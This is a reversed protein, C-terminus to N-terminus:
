KDILKNKNRYVLCVVVIAGIIIIAAYEINSYEAQSNDADAAQGKINNDFTKDTDVPQTKISGPTKSTDSKTHCKQYEESDKM